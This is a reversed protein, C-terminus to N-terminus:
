NLHPLIAVIAQIIGYVMIAFSLTVVSAPLKDQKAIDVLEKFDVYPFLLKRVVHLIGALLAVFGTVIAMSDLLLPSSLALLVYAIVFLLLARSESKIFNWIKEKM